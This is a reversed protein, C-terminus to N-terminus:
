EAKGKATKWIIECNDEEEATERDVIDIDGIGFIVDPLVLYSYAHYLARREEISEIYSDRSHYSQLDSIEMYSMDERAIGLKEGLRVIIDLMLSITKNFEFKLYEKNKKSQIIFEMFKEPTIRIGEDELVRKLRESELLRAGQSNGEANVTVASDTDIYLWKYCDSRIDYTKERLHGYIRNFEDRSMEGHCYKYLDRDFESTITTISNMFANMEDRTFYEKEVMTECFSHAMFECRSQRVYQPTVNEKMCGLLDEIYKYLKMVNNEKLPSSNRIDRRVSILQQVSEWDAETMDDYGTVVRETLEFLARCIMDTEERTFGDKQLERLRDRTCFDYSNFIIEYRINDHSSKERRLKDEYYKYLKYKLRDDLGAPTLAEFSYNVSVYPKNGIRQVLADEVAGYGFDRIAETWVRETILEKYLSYDLPRPNYGIMEAPNWFAKNSIIHHNDLYRCKAFAKAEMFEKDPIPKPIGICAMPRVDYILISDDGTIGFDIYLAEVDGLMSEIEKVAGILGAFSDCLFERSVNKAIWTTRTDGDPTSYNLVYYPLNNEEDRTSIRGSVFVKETRGSAAASKVLREKIDSLYGTNDSKKVM